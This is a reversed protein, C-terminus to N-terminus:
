TKWKPLVRQPRLRRARIIAKLDDVAQVLDDNIVVFEYEGAAQIEKVANELRLRLREPDETGRKKLREELVALSPPLIFIMVAQPLKEKVQRAGQVDIDLLVDQGAELRTFVEKKSTGYYNEHVEAWELFDGHAVMDLFVDRSVFYYDKGHVEGTRPPRTTHSVSFAIGPVEQLIRECVTTKGAGSPASIVFLDGQEM